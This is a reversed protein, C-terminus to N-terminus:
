WTLPAITVGLFLFLQMWSATAVPRDVHFWRRLSRLCSSAIYFSLILYSSPHGSYRVFGASALWLIQFVLSHQPVSQPKFCCSALDADLTTYGHHGPCATHVNGAAGPDCALDQRVDALSTDTSVVRDFMVLLRLWRAIPRGHSVSFYFFTLNGNQRLCHIHKLNPVHGHVM